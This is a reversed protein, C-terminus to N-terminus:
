LGLMFKPQFHTILNRYSAAAAHHFEDIVIYDFTTPAFAKLHERRSLTQISAFVVEANPDKVQGTYHGLRAERRVRRFRDLAQGLVEERHARFVVRTFEPPRTDFASLWTKGLGTALVVLGAKNGATRTAELAALAAAQIEHPTVPPRPAESVIDVAEIIPAQ